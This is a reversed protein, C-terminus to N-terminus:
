ATTALATGPSAPARDLVAAVAGAPLIVWLTLVRYIVVAAAAPAAVAGAAILGGLLAAEIVGIGGPTFPIQRLAQVGVYVTALSVFDVSAGVAFTAFALVAFDAVWKAVALAAGTKWSGAPIARSADRSSRVFGVLGNAARGFMTSPEAM